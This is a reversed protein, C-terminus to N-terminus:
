RENPRGEMYRDSRRRSFGHYKNQEQLWRLASRGIQNGLCAKKILSKAPANPGDAHDGIAKLLRQIANATRTDMVEAGGADASLLGFTTPTPFIGDPYPLFNKAALAKLLGRLHVLWTQVLMIGDGLPLRRPKLARAFRSCTEAWEEGDPGSLELRVERVSFSRWRYLQPHPTWQRSYGMPLEEAATALCILEDYNLLLEDKAELNVDPILYEVLVSPLNARLWDVLKPEGLHHRFNDLVHGCLRLDFDHLHQGTM